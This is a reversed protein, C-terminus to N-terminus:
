REIAYCEIATNGPGRSYWDYYAVEPVNRFRDQVVVLIPVEYVFPIYWVNEAMLDYIKHFLAVQKDFDPTVEVQHYLDMVQRMEGPPEEGDKGGTQYWLGWQAGLAHRSTRPFLALRTLPVERDLAWWADIDHLGASVRDFWLSRKRIKLEAKIGIRQWYQAVLQLGDVCGTQENSDINLRLVKGDPRKRYGQSNRETLGMEDLLQNALNPDYQVYAHAHKDHYFPSMKTPGFRRAKGLGFFQVENIDHRNIAVSLAIRFRKDNLLKRLVKDKHNLNPTLGISGPGVWHRIHFPTTTSGPAHSEHAKQTLLAYNPFQLYRSQMGIQGNIAKLNITELDAVVNFVHRDIYPLQNGNPDVKWYYPNRKFVTPKGPVVEKDRIWAELTPMPDNNEDPDRQHAILHYPGALGKDYAKQTLRNLQERSECYDPHFKKLYHKPSQGLLRFAGAEAMHMLFLGNPAAYRFRITYDDIKELKFLEGGIMYEGVLLLYMDAERVKENCLIDKYWFMIDDANWPHGDSWRVGKRLHLIWTRGGDSMKWSKALNPVFRTGTPDMRILREYGFRWGLYKRVGTGYRHYTGGYPGMQDPPVIVLPEEPLREEVPPLKGRAVLEALEPAENFKRPKNAPWEEVRHMRGEKTARDIEEVTWHRKPTTLKSLSALPVDGADSLAWTGHALLETLILLFVCSGVFLLIGRIFSKM